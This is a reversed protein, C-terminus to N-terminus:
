SVGAPEREPEVPQGLRSAQAELEDCAWLVLRLGDERPLLDGEATHAELIRGETTPYVGERARSVRLRGLRDGPRGVFELISDLYATIEPDEPGGAVAARLM